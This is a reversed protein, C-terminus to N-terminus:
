MMGQDRAEVALRHTKLTDHDLSKATTLVGTKNDLHFSKKVDGSQIYFRIKSNSGSDKDTANFRFLTTGVQINELVTKMYHSKSFEPANDNIDQINIDVRTMASETEMAKVFLTYNRKKEFDLKGSVEILGSRRGIRFPVSSGSQIMYSIGFFTRGSASTARVSLVSTGIGSNELVFTQYKDQSFQIPKQIVILVPVVARNPPYGGDSASVLLQFEANSSGSIPKSTSIVGTGEDVIFYNSSKQISYKVQGNTGTDKDTASVKLVSVGAQVDERTTAYYSEENFQPSQNNVDLISINFVVEATYLSDNAVIHLNYLKKTEYDLSKILCIAGSLKDVRFPGEQQAGTRFTYTLKPTRDKDTVNLRAIVTGVNANEPIQASTRGVFQPKNDNFDTIVIRVLSTQSMDPSGPNLAKVILDYISQQERDLFARTKIEGSSTSIEFKGGTNGSEISYEIKANSGSDADTANVDAVFRSLFGHSTMGDDEMLQINLNSPHFAPKNDNVDLLSIILKLYANLSNSSTSTAVIHLQFQHISEYDLKSTDTVTVVGTQAAISFTNGPNGDVISYSVSAGTALVRVVEYDKPSDEAIAVASPSANVFKPPTDSLTGVVIEVIGSGTRPPVGKDTAQIHLIYRGDAPRTKTRIDGSNSELIFANSSVSLSYSVNANSGTDGDTASVKLVLQDSATGSAISHRYPFQKFVPSHNNQDEIKVFVQAFDKSPTTGQDTAICMFEYQSKRKFDFQQITFIQGTESNVRFADVAKISLSYAIRGNSGADSDLASVNLINTGPLTLEKVSVTYNVASFKPKNDNEDEVLITVNATTTFHPSIINKAQIVLEYLSKHERDLPVGTSLVGSDKGIGFYGETNGRIISFENQANDGTDVDKVVMTHFSAAPQNEAIRLVLVDPTFRPPNDNKDVVQIHVTSTAIRFPLASDQAYVRLEYMKKMEHDFTVNTTIFGSKRDISFRDKDVGQLISYSLDANVGSDKDTAEVQIVFSGRPEREGVRGTYLNSNFIPPNDNVDVVVVTFVQYSLLAPRGSDKATINLIYKPQKEYDLQGILKLQGSYKDLHFHLSDKGHVMGYEVAGNSGEDDDVARISMVPYQVQEDERVKTFSQSTFRPKNDNIDTILVILTVTSSLREQETLAQDTACIILTFKDTSERDIEAITSIAGTKQDIRFHPPGPSQLDIQYWIDSNPGESDADQAKITIFTTNIPVGEGLYRYMPNKKFTPRNENSDIVHVIVYMISHQPNIQAKDTAQIQLEYRNTRDHDLAKTTHIAGSTKNIM